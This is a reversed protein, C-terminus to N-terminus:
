KTAKHSPIIYVWGFSNNKRLKLYKVTGCKECWAITEFAQLRWKHKCKKMKIWQSKISYDKEAINACLIVVMLVGVKGNEANVNKM